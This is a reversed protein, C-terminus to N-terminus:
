KKRLNSIAAILIPSLGGIISAISSGTSGKLALLAGFLFGSIGLLFTFIQGILPIYAAAWSSRNKQTVNAENHKEAMKIIREPFTKDIESFGKLVDPHPIPGTYLEQTQQINTQIKAPASKKTPPIYNGNM